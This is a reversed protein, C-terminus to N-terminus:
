WIFTLIRLELAEKLCSLRKTMTNIEDKSFVTNVAQRISAWKKNEFSKVKLKDLKAILDEALKAANNCINEFGKQKETGSEFFSVNADASCFSKRLKLVLVQLDAAVLELEEIATLTRSSSTYLDRADTILTRGFDVFQVITGALSLATLPDM